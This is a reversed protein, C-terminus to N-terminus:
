NFSNDEAVLVPSKNCRCKPVQPTLSSLDLVLNKPNVTKMKKLHFNDNKEEEINEGV